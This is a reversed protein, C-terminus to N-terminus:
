FNKNFKEIFIADDELVLAFNYDTKIFKKYIKIHSLACGIQSPSM